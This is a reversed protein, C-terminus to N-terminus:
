REARGAIEAVSDLFQREVRCSPTGLLATRANVVLDLSHGLSARNRRFIGRLVRKARNRIVANGVKRTVTLGLRCHGAGNPLGFIVFCPRSARWGNEYV